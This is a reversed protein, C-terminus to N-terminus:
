IPKSFKSIIDTCVAHSQHVLAIQKIPGKCLHIASEGHECSKCNSPLTFVNM